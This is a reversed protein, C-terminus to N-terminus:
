AVVSVANPPLAHLRNGITELRRPLRIAPGKTPEGERQEIEGARRQGTEPDDIRRQRPDNIGLGALICHEQTAVGIKMLKRRGLTQRDVVASAPGEGDAAQMAICAMAGVSGLGGIQRKGIAAVDRDGDRIQKKLVGDALRRRHPQRFTFEVLGIRQLRPRRHELKPSSSTERDNEIRGSPGPLVLNRRNSGHQRHEMSQERRRMRGEAKRRRLLPPRDDERRIGPQRCFGIAKFEGFGFNAQAVAAAGAPLIAQGAKGLKQVSRAIMGAFEAERRATCDRVLRAVAPAAAMEIYGALKIRGGIHRPQDIDEGPELEVDEVPVQRVVLRPAQLDLRKRLQRRKTHQAAWILRQQRLEAITCFGDAAEVALSVDLRDDRLCACKVDIDHRLDVNGSVTRRREDSQRIEGIALLRRLTVVRHLTIRVIREVRGDGEGILEELFDEILHDLEERALIEMDAAVFHRVARPESRRKGLRQHLLLANGAGERQLGIEQLPHFLHQRRTAALEGTPVLHRM